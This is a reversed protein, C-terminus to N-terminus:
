DNLQESAELGMQEYLFTYARSCAYTRSMSQYTVTLPDRSLCLTVSWCLADGSSNFYIKASKLDGSRSARGCLKWFEQEM